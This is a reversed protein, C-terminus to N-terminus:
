NRKIPFPTGSFNAEYYGDQIYTFEIYDRGYDRLDKYTIQRRESVNMRKRLYEGLVSGGKEATINNPYQHFPANPLRKSKSPREVGTGGFVMEMLTGDDWLVTVPDFRRTIKGSTTTRTSPVFPFIVPHNDVLESTVPIYAEAYATGVRTNGSQLGWNLGSKPTVVKRKKSDFSYLPMFAVFPNTSIPFKGKARSKPKNVTTSPNVVILPDGCPLSASDIEKAYNDLAQLYNANQLESLNLDVLMESNDTSTLGDISCNASGVLANTIKTSNYFLYCKTHVHYDYVIKITLNPYVRDIAQLKRYTLATLGHRRYMGYYFTTPINLQAIEEITNPTAFGSIITIHDSAQSNNLVIQKLNTVNVSM